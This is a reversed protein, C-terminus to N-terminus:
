SYPEFETSLLEVKFDKGDPLIIDALLTFTGETYEDRSIYITGSKLKRYESYYMVPDEYRFYYDDNNWATDVNINRGELSAHIGIIAYTTSAPTDQPSIRLMITNGGDAYFASFIPYEKGDYIYKGIAEAAPDEKEPKQQEPQQQEPDPEPKPQPQPEAPKECGAFLFASALLTYLLKKMTM